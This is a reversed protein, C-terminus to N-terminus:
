LYIHTICWCHCCCFTYCSIVSQCAISLNFVYKYVDGAIDIACSILYCHYNVTKRTISLMEIFTDICMVSVFIIPVAKEKYTLQRVYINLMFSEPLTRICM